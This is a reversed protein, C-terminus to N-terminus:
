EKKKLQKDQIFLLIIWAPIGFVIMGLAGGMGGGPVEGQTIYSLVLFVGGGAMGIWFALRDRFKDSM